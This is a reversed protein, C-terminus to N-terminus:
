QIVKKSLLLVAFLFYWAKREKFSAKREPFDALNM